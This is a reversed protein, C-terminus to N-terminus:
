QTMTLSRYNILTMNSLYSRALGGGRSSIYCRDLRSQDFHDGHPAMRTFRSGWTSSLILYCDELDLKTKFLRWNVLEEGRILVSTGSTDDRHEVMNFDGLILWQGAHLNFSLWSWLDYRKAAENPAYLSAVGFIVDDVFMKIWVGQGFPLEGSDIINYDKQVLLADGGRGDTTASIFHKHTPMITNM